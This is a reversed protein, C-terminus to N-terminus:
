LGPRDHRRLATGAPAVIWPAARWRALPHPEGPLPTLTRPAALFTAEEFLAVTEVGPDTPVPVFDYDHVLAVDVEGARLAGAVAAPDLERLRPELAPHAAALTALAAPV